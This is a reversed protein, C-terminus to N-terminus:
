TEGFIIKAGETKRQAKAHFRQAGNPERYPAFDTSLPAFNYNNRRPACLIILREPNVIKIPTITENTM